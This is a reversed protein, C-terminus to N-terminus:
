FPDLGVLVNFQNNGISTIKTWTTGNSSWYANYRFSGVQSTTAVFYGKVFNVNDFQLDNPDTPFALTTPTWTVADTSTWVTSNESQVAVFVGNGWIANLSSGSLGPVTLTSPPGWTIGDVSSQVQLTNAGSSRITYWANVSGAAYFPGGSANSIADGASWTIGNTSTATASDTIALFTGNAFRVRTWRGSSLPNISTWSTGNNTSYAVQTSDANVGGAVAVWTGAGYALEAWIVNVPSPNFAPLSAIFSWNTGNTTRYVTGTSSVALVTSGSTALSFGSGSPGSAGPSNFFSTISITAVQARPQEVASSKRVGVIRGSIPNIINIDLSGSSTLRTINRQVVGNYLTFGGGVLIKDDPQLAISRTTTFMDDGFSAERVGTGTVFDNDISGNALLRIIRNATVGNYSTFGGGVLIKGDPQLAIARNEGLGGAFGTGTVFDNDISGNALLRIIRNATVGNYSIFAGVVLIKGDPQLIISWVTSGFGTGTVFDNDISGNALLRIIRNATVGNYSTFAGGVLIKGDSLPLFTAVASSFGTGTVFDNDISGNALLRIIRNATVGNYSTFEGGVLIKGDPQLTAKYVQNNFGTGTVFDNDISGNALLRIIRNATVGNYSTFEGVVLIKGDAQLTIDFSQVAGSGGIGSGTNFGLDRTGTPNLRIIRNALSSDYSSFNGGVLIKGDTQLTIVNVRADTGSSINFTPSFINTLATLQRLTISTLRPM